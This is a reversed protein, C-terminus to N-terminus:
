ASPLALDQPEIVLRGPTGNLRSLIREEGDGCINRLQREQRHKPHDLEEIKRWTWGNARAWLIMRQDRTLWHLWELTEDLKTIQEASPPSHRIQAPTYGYATWEYVVDPWGAKLPYPKGRQPMPMRKLADAAGTLRSRVDDLLWAIPKIVRESLISVGYM